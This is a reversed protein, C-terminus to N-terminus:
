YRLRFHERQQEKRLFALGYHYLDVTVSVRPHGQIEAWAQEMEANWHIDDFIFVSDNHAKALCQGFYDLTPAAAHHGDIFVLDLRDILGLVLPLQQRFPGTHLTINAGGHQQFHGQALSATAPCGEITHVRADPLTRALYLTTIGLSTGLELVSGPRFHQAIRALQEAQRRPKLASRAMSGIRRENGQKRRPGAGHDTVTITDNRQLLERRLDEIAAYESGPTRQRLAETVLKYVFPSHVDHRNGATLVHSLYSRAATSLLAM